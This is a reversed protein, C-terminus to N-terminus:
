QHPEEIVSPAAGYLRQYQRYGGIVKKVYDRTERFSISEVFEDRDQAGFRRAWKEVAPEGGNYAALAKLPDGHFQALLQVLYRTGLAINRQPDRLQETSIPAGAVREATRPLLQMLGWADAPSRADPDYLSEQRILAAVLLPDIPSSTANERAARQVDDWFGLPCFVRQRAAADLGAQNGLRRALRLAAGDGDVARYWRLLKRLEATNGRQESEYANLERRALSPLAAARLEVARGLHYDVSSVPLAADAPPVVASPSASVVGLRQEAWMAYYSTPADSALRQYLARAAASRGQHDLARAQWYLADACDETNGCRALAAFSNAAAAWDARGYQIWGIRWRAERALKDRPAIRALERYSAIARDARGAKEHIRGIAYLSETAKEARAYRRRLNAFAALAEEDRDRNWLISAIRFETAAATTGSEGRAAIRLAAITDDVRGLGLLAQADLHLLEDRESENAHTLQQRVLPEATAFDHEGVLVRIEDILETDGPALAPNSARLQLLEAKAQVGVPEGSAERRLRQLGAAAAAVDGAAIQVRALELAAPQAITRERAGTAAALAARAAVLDGRTLEVRGLELAGADRNVSRPQENLLRRLPPAAEAPHGSRALAVGLYYWQYDILEPYTRSLAEFRPAADAFREQEILAVAEAFAARREPPPGSPEPRPLPVVQPARCGASWAAGIAVVVVWWRM